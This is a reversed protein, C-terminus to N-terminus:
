RCESVPVPGTPQGHKIWQGNQCLWTDEGSIFRLGFLIVAVLILLVIGTYVLNFDTLKIKNYYHFIFAYLILLLCTSYALVLGITEYVPNLYKLSYSALMLVVALWAYIQIALRAAQGGLAYDREDAVVGQLQRRWYYMLLAASVLLPVALWFNQNVFSQGFLIALGIVMFMKLWKYQKITM